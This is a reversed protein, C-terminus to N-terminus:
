KDAKAEVKTLIKDLKDEFRLLDLRTAYTKAVNEKHESLGKELDRLASYLTRLVWGVAAMGASLLINWIYQPDM